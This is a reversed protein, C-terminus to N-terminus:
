GRRARPRRALKTEAARSVAAVKYFYERPLQELSTEAARSEAACGASCQTHGAACGAPCRFFSRSGFVLDRRHYGRFGVLFFRVSIQLIVQLIAMCFLTQHIFDHKVIKLLKIILCLDGGLKCM